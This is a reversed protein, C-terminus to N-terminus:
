FNNLVLFSRYLHFNWIIYYDSMSPRELIQSRFCTKESCGKWDPTIQDVWLKTAFIGCIMDLLSSLYHSVVWINVTQSWKNHAAIKFKKLAQVISIGRQTRSQYISFSYNKDLATIQNNPEQYSLSYVHSFPICYLTKHPISVTNYSIFLFGWWFIEQDNNM